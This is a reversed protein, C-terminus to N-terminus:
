YSWDQQVAYMNVDESVKCNDLLLIVPLVAGTVLTERAQLGHSSWAALSCSKGGDSHISRGRM